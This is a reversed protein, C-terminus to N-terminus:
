IVVFLAALVFRVRTILLIMFGEFKKNFFVLKEILDLLLYIVDYIM